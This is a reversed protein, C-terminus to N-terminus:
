SLLRAGYMRRVIPEQTHLPKLVLSEFRNYSNGSTGLGVLPHIGDARVLRAVKDGCSTVGRSVIVKRHQNTVRCYRILADTVHIISGLQLRQRLDEQVSAQSGVSARRWVSLCGVLIWWTLFTEGEIKGMQAKHLRVNITELHELM